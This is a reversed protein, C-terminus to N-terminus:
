QLKRHLKVQRHDKRVEFWERLAEIYVSEGADEGNITEVTISRVPQFARYMLHRLAVMHESLRRDDPPASFTLEKGSRQSVMVLDRGQYVLHTSTVRRPL